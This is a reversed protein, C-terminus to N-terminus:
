RVILPTMTISPVASLQSLQVVTGAQSRSRHRGSGGSRSCRLGGM